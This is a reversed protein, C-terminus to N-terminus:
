GYTQADRNRPPAEPRQRREYTAVLQGCALTHAKLMNLFENLRTEADEPLRSDLAFLQFHYRHVGHGEPPRPGMYGIDGAGNRGQVAGRLADPPTRGIGQPLGTETGPINWILWHLFPEPTPADPDEVVLAFTEAELWRTWSLAPSLNDFYASHADALSGDAQVAPSTVRLQATENPKVKQITIREGSSHTTLHPSQPEAM